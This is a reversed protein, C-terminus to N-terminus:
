GMMALARRRCEAPDDTNVLPERQPAQAQSNTITSPGGSAQRTREAVTREFEAGFKSRAAAVDDKAANPDAKPRLKEFRSLKSIGEAGLEVLKTEVMETAKAIDLLEGTRTFYEKCVTNVLEVPHSLGRADAVNAMFEAREPSTQIHEAIKGKHWEVARDQIRQENEKQAATKADADQRLRGDIDRLQQKLARVEPDVAKGKLTYHTLDEMTKAFREGSEDIMGLAQLAGITDGAEYLAQAQILPAVKAQQEKYETEKALVAREKRALATFRPSWRDQPADAPAVETSAPVAMGVAVDAAAVLNADPAAPAPAVSLTPAPASPAVPAPAAAVESM